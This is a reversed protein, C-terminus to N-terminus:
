EDGMFNVDLAVSATINTIILAGSTPIVIGRPFTWVIGVGVTAASNWRAMMVTPPTPSTGYTLATSTVCAPDASDDRQLVTITPVM